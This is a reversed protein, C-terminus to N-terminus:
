PSLLMATSSLSCDYCRPPPNNRPFPRGLKAAQGPTRTINLRKTLDSGRHCSSLFHTHTKSGRLNSFRDSARVTACHIRKSLHDALLALSWQRVFDLHDMAWLASSVAQYVVTKAIVTTQRKVVYELHDLRALYVLLIDDHM